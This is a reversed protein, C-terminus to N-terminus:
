VRICGSCARCEHMGGDRWLQEREGSNRQRRWGVQQLQRKGAQQRLLMCRMKSNGVMPVQKAQLTVSGIPKGTM